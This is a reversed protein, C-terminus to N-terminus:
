ARPALRVFQQETVRSGWQTGAWEHVCVFGFSEYLARAADLGQFTWLHTEDFGRIDCFAMAEAMLRRGIGSGRCGDDLIFWRLHAKNDGLDEGDIALSGVIRGHLQATWIRNCPSQLRGTYAALETAVRSEFYQGFGAHAAYFAAHMEAVRGILGPQYGTHVTIPSTPAEARGLRHAKLGAAYTALGQAASQQQTPNLHQLAQLVQQQGFAHIREVTRAGQPTLSLSKVRGDEPHAQEHLEGAALLKAVMRSVSSKDLDLLSALQVATLAGQADIEMLAHVASPSHATAAITAKMFGLERVLTRSAARISEVLAMESADAAHPTTM